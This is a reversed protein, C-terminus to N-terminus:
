ASARRESMVDTKASLGAAPSQDWPEHVDSGSKLLGGPAHGSSWGGSPQADGRGAEVAPGLSAGTVLVRISPSLLHLDGGVGVPSGCVCRESWWVHSQDSRADFCYPPVWMM